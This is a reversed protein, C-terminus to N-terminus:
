KKMCVSIIGQRPFIALTTLFIHFTEQLYILHNLFVKTITVQVLDWLIKFSFEFESWFKSNFPIWYFKRSNSEVWSKCQHNLCTLVKNLCPINCFHCTEVKWFQFYHCTEVKRFKFYYTGVMWIVLCFHCTGVKRLQFYHCTGVKRFQFYHSTGVM